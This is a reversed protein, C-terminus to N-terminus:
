SSCVCLALAAVESASVFADVSVEAFAVGTPAPVGVVPATITGPLYLDSVTTARRCHSWGLVVAPAPGEEMNLCRVTRPGGGVASESAVNVDVEWCRECKLLCVDNELNRRRM